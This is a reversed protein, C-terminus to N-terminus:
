IVRSIAVSHYEIRTWVELMELGKERESDSVFESALLFASYNCKLVLPDTELSPCSFHFVSLSPISCPLTPNPLTLTFTTIHEGTMKVTSQQRNMSNKYKM